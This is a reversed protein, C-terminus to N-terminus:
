HSPLIAGHKILIQKERREGLWFSIVVAITGTYLPWLLLLKELLSNSMNKNVAAAATEPQGNVISAVTLFAVRDNADTAQISIQYVGPKTYVHTTNFPENNGRPVIKNTSDGWQIDVAYPPTGGIIDIPVSLEHDPFVGRFVANTNLLLQSGGFVLPSLPAGQPTLADYHVVISKSDPGAQNLADYVRAVLTNKGIMLDVELKYVGASTCLASGAFINNKFIEVLTEPPCTGSVTIPSTSFRQGDKPQAITAGTKPPKGPMIGTLGISRSEPGPSAASATFMTLMVGVVLLMAGLFFYSTHEHPKLRGSHTHPSIKLRKPM